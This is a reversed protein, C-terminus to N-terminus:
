CPESRPSITGELLISIAVFFSGPRRTSNVATMQSSLSPKTETHGSIPTVDQPSETSSAARMSSSATARYTSFERSSPSMFSPEAARMGPWRQVVEMLTATHCRLQRAQRRTLQGCRQPLGTKSVSWTPPLAAMYGQESRPLGWSENDNWQSLGKGRTGNTSDNSLGSDAPLFQQIKETLRVPVARVSFEVTWLVLMGIQEARRKTGKQAKKHSDQPKQMRGSQSGVLARCIRGTM